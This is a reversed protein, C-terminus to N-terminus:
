QSKKVPKIQIVIDQRKYDDLMRDTKAFLREARKRKRQEEAAAFHGFHALLRTVWSM